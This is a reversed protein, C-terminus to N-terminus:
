TMSIIKDWVLPVTDILESIMEDLMDCPKKNEHDMLFSINNYNVSKSPYRVYREMDELVPALIWSITIYRLYSTKATAFQQRLYEWGPHEYGDFQNNKTKLYAKFNHSVIDSFHVILEEESYKHQKLGQIAKLPNQVFDDTKKGGKSVYLRIDDDIIINIMGISVKILKHGYSKKMKEEIEQEGMKEYSVFYKALISKTSKEFSQAYEYIAHSFMNNDRLINAAKLDLNALEYLKEHLELM